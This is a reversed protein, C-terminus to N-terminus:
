NQESRIWEILFSLSDEVQKCINLKAMLDANKDLISDNYLNPAFIKALSQANMKKGKTKESVALCVKVLYLLNKMQLEDLQNFFKLLKDKQVYKEAAPESNIKLFAELISREDFIPNLRLKEKFVNAYLLIKDEYSESEAKLKVISPYPPNEFQMMAHDLSPKASSIRFTGEPFEPQNRLEDTMREIVDAQIARKDRCEMSYDYKTSCLRELTELEAKLNQQLQILDTRTGEKRGAARIHVMLQSGELCAMTKELHSIVQKAEKIRPLIMQIEHPSGLELDNQRLIKNYQKTFILLHDLNRASEQVKGAWKKIKNNDPEPLPLHFFDLLWELFSAKKLPVNNIKNFIDSYGEINELSINNMFVM